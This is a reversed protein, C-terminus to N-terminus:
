GSVLYPSTRSAACRSVQAPTGEAVLRGGEDKIIAAHMLDRAAQNGRAVRKYFWLSPQPSVVPTASTGALYKGKNIQLIVQPKGKVQTFTLTQASGGPTWVPNERHLTLVTKADYDGLFPGSICRRM